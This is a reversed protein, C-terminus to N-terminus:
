IPRPEAVKRFHFGYIALTVALPLLGPRHTVTWILLRWYQLRERGFIGLRFISRVFAMLHERRIPAKIRPPNYEKLFDILRQYYPGPSYIHQMVARYGERLTELGMKPILNTDGGTNDGSSPASLRGAVKLREYLHTGPLAQLMGVMATVVRSKQIFDIQQQFVSTTDSDFGVIFGGQVQIGAQQIRMIDAVMDRKVNQYKGCEALSEKNPTEIGVFVTRFGARVMLDLLQKDQALNISVETNFVFGKKDGRWGILAPLLENKLHRKNGIFNDDVFFVNGRWRHAYLSYLVDLFQQTSRFRPRHGLLVFVNFFVCVFPCGRSYQISM